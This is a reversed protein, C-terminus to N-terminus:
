DDANSRKRNGIRLKAVRSTQELTQRNYRLSTSVQTHAAMAMAGETTAGSEYAETVAGARADMNWVNDPIGAARAILRFNYRAQEPNYPLGTRENIVLPGVRCEVPIRELEAILDPYDAIRHEAMRASTKATKSVMKRLIGSADIHAWTLGDRWLRRGHRIGDSAGLRDDVWEGIVDRRRLGLEYQLTLWLAASPRNLRRAADRFAAVQAYTLRESRAPASKFRTATMQGRLKACDDMGKSTGYSVVAKLISITLAAYGVKGSEGSMRRFWRKVDAGTLQDVYADPVKTLLLRLIKSYTKQSNPHLEHYPSEEDTQYMQILTALKGDYVPIPRADGRHAWALMESQLRHCRSALAEMELPSSVDYHLRVTKPQYGRKILDARARWYPVREGSKRTNWPLGPAETRAM